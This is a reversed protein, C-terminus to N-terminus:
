WAGTMTVAWNMSTDLRARYAAMTSMEARYLNIFANAVQGSSDKLTLYGFPVLPSTLSGPSAMPATGVFDAPAIATLVAGRSCSGMEVDHRKGTATGSLWCTQKLSM